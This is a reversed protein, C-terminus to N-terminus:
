VIHRCTRVDTQDDAAGYPYRANLDASGVPLPVADVVRLPTVKCQPISGVSPLPTNTGTHMSNESPVYRFYRRFLKIFYPNYTYLILINFVDTRNM